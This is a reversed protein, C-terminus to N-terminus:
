NTSNDLQEITVITQNRLQRIILEDLQRTTRLNYIQGNDLQVTTFQGIKNKNQKKHIKNDLEGIRGSDLQGIRQQEFTWNEFQGEFQRGVISYWSIYNKSKLNNCNRGAFCKKGFM